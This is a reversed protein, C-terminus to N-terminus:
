TRRRGADASVGRGPRSEPRVAWRCVRLGLGSEQAVEVLAAALALQLRRGLRPDGPLLARPLCAHGAGHLLPGAASSGAGRAQRCRLRVTWWEGRRSCTCDVLRLGPALRGRLRGAAAALVRCGWEGKEM